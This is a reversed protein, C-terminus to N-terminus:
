NTAAHRFGAREARETKPHLGRRHQLMTPAAKLVVARERELAALRLESPTRAAGGGVALFGAPPGAAPKVAAIRKELEDLKAKQEAPPVPFSPDFNGGNGATTDPTPNM